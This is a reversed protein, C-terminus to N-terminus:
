FHEGKIKSEGDLEKLTSEYAQKFSSYNLLKEIMKIYITDSMLMYDRFDNDMTDSEKSSEIPEQNNYAFIHKVGLKQFVKAIKDGHQICIFAVEINLSM